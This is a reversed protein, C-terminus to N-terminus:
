EPTPEVCLQGPITTPGYTTTAYMSTSYEVTKTPSYPLSTPEVTYTKSPFSESPSYLSSTSESPNYLSSTAEVTYTQSPPSESPNFVATHTEETDPLSESPNFVATRTEETDPLSEWPNFVATRTEKTDTHTEEADPPSEWPMFVATRTEEVLEVTHTSSLPTPKGLDPENGEDFLVTFFQEDVTTSSPEISGTSSDILDIAFEANVASLSFSAAVLLLKGLTSGANGKFKM